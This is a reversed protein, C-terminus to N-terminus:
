FDELGWIQLFRYFPAINKLIDGTHM